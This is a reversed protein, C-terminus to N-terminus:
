YKLETGCIECDTRYSSNFYGCGSCHGKASTGLRNGCLECEHKHPPNIWSCKCRDSQRQLHKEYM